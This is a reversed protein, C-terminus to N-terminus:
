QTNQVNTFMTFARRDAQSAERRQERRGLRRVQHAADRQEVGGALEGVLRGGGRRGLFLLLAVRQAPEDHLRELLRELADHQAEEEPLGLLRGPDLFDQFAYTVNVVTVIRSCEISTTQGGNREHTGFEVQV